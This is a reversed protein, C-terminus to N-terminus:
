TNNVDNTNLIKKYKTARRQKKWMKKHEENHPKLDKHQMIM